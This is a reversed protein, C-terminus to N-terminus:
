CSATAGRPVVCLPRQELIEGEPGFVRIRGEAEASLFALYVDFTFGPLGTWVMTPVRRGEELEVEVRGAARTVVGFVAAGAGRTRVISLVTDLPDCGGPGGTAGLSLSACAQDASANTALTWDLDGRVGSAISLEPPRSPFPPVVNLERRAVVRGSADYAVVAREDEVPSVFLLADSGSPAPVLDLRSEGGSEVLAARATGPPVLGYVYHNRGFITRAVITADRASCLRDDERGHSFLLCLADPDGTEITLSWPDGRTSGELVDVLSPGSIDVSASGLSGITENYTDVERVTSATIFGFFRVNVDM